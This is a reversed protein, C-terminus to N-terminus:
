VRQVVVQDLIHTWGPDLVRDGVKAGNLYLEYYGLGSIYARARAVKANSPLTFEKRIQNYGGIWQGKWDSQFLLATDFQAISSYMSVSGRDNWWRVKWYYSTDSQLTSGAFPILTSRNGDAKGSDWVDGSEVTPSASVLLQYAAQVSGRLPTVIQWSFRPTPTDLSLVPSELYEVRLNLPPAIGEAASALWLGVVLM